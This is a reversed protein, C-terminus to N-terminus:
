LLKENLIKKLNSAITMPTVEHRDYFMLEKIKKREVKQSEWNISEIYKEISFENFDLLNDFNKGLLNRSHNSFFKKKLVNIFIIKKDLYCSGFPTGGFDCLIYDAVSFLKQMELDGRSFLYINERLIIKKYYQEDLPHLRILFNYNPSFIKEQNNIIFNLSSYEHHTKSSLATPMYLINKKDNFIKFETKFNLIDNAQYTFYKNYKPYGLPFIKKKSFKTELIKKEFPGHVFFGDYFKNRKNTQWDTLEAGYSFRYNYKAIKLPLYLDLFKLSKKILEYISFYNIHIKFTTLLKLIAKLIFYKYRNSTEGSHYHNSISILYKEVLNKDTSYIKFNLNKDKISEFHKEYLNKEVLIEFDKKELYEFIPRWHDFLILDHIIFAIKKKFRM